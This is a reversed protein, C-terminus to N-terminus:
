WRDYHLVDALPQRVGRKFDARLAYAVPILAIQTFKAFPIGLLEAMEEEYRLHMTTWSTGLGRARAALMFSWVAPVVSGWYNAQRHTTTLAECRGASLPFLLCPVRHLNLALFEASNFVRRQAASQQSDELLLPLSHASYDAFARRYVDAVQARTKEEFVALFHWPQRNGGSPAQAALTICEAIVDREVPRALDLQRRVARTTTLLTDADLVAGSRGTTPIPLGEYKIRRHRFRWTGDSDRECVDHYEGCRVGETGSGVVVFGSRTRATSGEIDFVLNLNRHVAGAAHRERMRTIIAERGAVMYSGAVEFYADVVFCDTLRDFQGADIASSYREYLDAIGSQDLM